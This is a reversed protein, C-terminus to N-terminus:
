ESKKRLLTQNLTDDHNEKKKKWERFPSIFGAESILLYIIM